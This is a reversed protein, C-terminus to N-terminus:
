LLRYGRNIFSRKSFFFFFLEESFWRSKHLCRAESASGQPKLSVDSLTFLCVWHPFMCKGWEINPRIRFTETRYQMRFDGRFDTSCKAPMMINWQFLGSKACIFLAHGNTRCASVCFLFIMRFFPVSLLIRYTASSRIWAAECSRSWEAVSAAAM